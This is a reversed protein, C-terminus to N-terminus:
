FYLIPMVMNWFGIEMVSSRAALAEVKSRRGIWVASSGEHEEQLHHTWQLRSYGRPQNPLAHNPPVTESLAEIMNRPRYPVNLRFLDHEAGGNDLRSDRATAALDSTSTTATIGM